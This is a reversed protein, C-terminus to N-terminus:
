FGEWDDNKPAAQKFMLEGQGTLFKYISSITFNSHANYGWDDGMGGILNKEYAEKWREPKVWGALRTYTFGKSELVQKPTSDKFRTPYDTKALVENISEM